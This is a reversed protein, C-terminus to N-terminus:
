NLSVRFKERRRLSVLRFWIIITPLLLPITETTEEQERYGWGWGIKGTVILSFVPCLLSVYRLKNPDPRRLQGKKKEKKCQKEYRKLVFSIPQILDSPSCPHTLPSSITSSFNFLSSPFYCFLLIPLFLPHLKRDSFRPKKSTSLRPPRRFDSTYYHAASYNGHLTNLLFLSSVCSPHSLSSLSLPTRPSLPRVLYPPCALM